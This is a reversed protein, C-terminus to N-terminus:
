AGSMCADSFEHQQTVALADPIELVQEGAPDVDVQGLLAAVFRALGAPQQLASPM